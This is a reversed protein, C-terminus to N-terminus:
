LSFAGATRASAKACIRSNTRTRSGQALEIYTVASLEVTQCDELAERASERGRFLWILIDTDALMGPAACIACMPM